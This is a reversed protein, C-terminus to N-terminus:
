EDTLESEAESCRDAAKIVDMVMATLCNVRAHFIPDHLYRYKGGDIYEIADSFNQPIGKKDEEAFFQLADIITSTLDKSIKSYKNRIM